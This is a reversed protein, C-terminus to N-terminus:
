RDISRFFANLQLVARSDKFRPSENLLNLCAGFDICRPQNNIILLEKLTAFDSTAGQNNLVWHLTAIAKKSLEKDEEDIALSWFSTSPSTESIKVKNSMTHPSFVSDHVHIPTKILNNLPVGGPYSIDHDSNFIGLLISRNVRTGFFHGPALPDLWGHAKLSTKTPINGHDRKEGLMSNSQAVFAVSINSDEIGHERLVDLLKTPLRSAFASSFEVVMVLVPYGLVRNNSDDQLIPMRPITKAYFLTMETNFKILSTYATDQM